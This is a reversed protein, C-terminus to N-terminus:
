GFIQRFRGLKALKKKSIIKSKFIECKCLYQPSWANKFFVQTKKPKTPKRCFFGYEEMNKAYDLVMVIGYKESDVYECFLLIMGNSRKKDWVLLCGPLGNHGNKPGQLGQFETGGKWSNYLIIPRHWEYTEPPEISKWAAQDTQNFIGQTCLARCLFIAHWLNRHYWAKVNSLNM